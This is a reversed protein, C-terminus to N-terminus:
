EVGIVAYDAFRRVPDVNGNEEYGGGSHIETFCSPESFSCGGAGFGCKGSGQKADNSKQEDNERESGRLEANEPIRQYTGVADTGSIDRM